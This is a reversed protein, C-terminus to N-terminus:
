VGFKGVIVTGTQANNDLYDAWRQMMVIREELFKARDYARNVDGKKQTLLSPMRCKM